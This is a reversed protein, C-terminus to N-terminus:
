KEKLKIKLKIDEAVDNATYQVYKDINKLVMKVENNDAFNNKIRLM